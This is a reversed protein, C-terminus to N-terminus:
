QEFWPERETSRIDTFLLLLLCCCEYVRDQLLLQTLGRVKSNKNVSDDIYVM